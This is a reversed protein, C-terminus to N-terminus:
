ASRPAPGPEPAPPDVQGPQREPAPASAQQQGRERAILRDLWVHYLVIVAVLLGILAVLSLKVILDM